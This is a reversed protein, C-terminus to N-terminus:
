ACNEFFSAKGRAQQTPEARPYGPYKRGSRGSEMPLADPRQDEPVRADLHWKDGTKPRRRKLENAYMQGFKLCWQRITEYTLVVGREAMIEEVDRYRFRSASICGSAIAL